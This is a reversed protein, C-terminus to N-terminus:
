IGVPFILTSLGQGLRVSVALHNTSPRSFFFFFFKLDTLEKNWCFNLAKKKKKLTGHHEKKKKKQSTENTWMLSQELNVNSTYHSVRCCCRDCHSRILHSIISPTFLLGHHCILDRYFFFCIYTRSAYDYKDSLDRFYSM